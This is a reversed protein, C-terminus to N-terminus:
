WLSVNSIRKSITNFVLVVTFNLVSNFLGIATSYSFDGLLVGRRYVYYNIVDAQVLTADNSLLMIKEYGVSFLSGMQLILMTMITPVLAPLTIYALRQWRTAGDVTAAEYLAPDIGALAGLYIISGWGASQWIGSLVYITKFHQPQAMFHVQEGGLRVIMQNIIGTRPALFSLVMGSVVVISIFHPLYVITQVSRRISSGSIENIFIAMIIPIPFGAILSYLSIQLTNRILLSFSPSNFFQTFYRWGVWESGTIGDAPNYSRFAIQAGYMPQYFFILYYLIAPVMMLYLYKSRNLEKLVTSRKRGQLPTTTADTKNGSTNM